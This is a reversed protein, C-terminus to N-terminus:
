RSRSSAHFRRSAAPIAPSKVCSPEMTPNSPLWTSPPGGATSDCRAGMKTLWGVGAYTPVTRSRRASAGATLRTRATAPMTGSPPRSTLGISLVMWLRTATWAPPVHRAASKWLVGAANWPRGSRAWARVSSSRASSGFRWVGSPAARGSPAILPTPLVARHIAALRALSLSSANGSKLSGSARSRDPSTPKSSCRSICAAMPACPSPGSRYRDIRVLNRSSASTCATRDRVSAGPRSGPPRCPCARTGCEM